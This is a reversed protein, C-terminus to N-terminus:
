VSPIIDDFKSTFAAASHSVVLYRAATYVPWMRKMRTVSTADNARTSPRTRCHAADDVALTDGAATAVPHDAKFEDAVEL